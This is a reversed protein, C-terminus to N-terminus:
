DSNRAESGGGSALSDGGADSNRAESGGGSALSDGGAGSNQAQSGGDLAQSEGGADSNQAQSGNGSAQSEGGADSNQAQSGNGSAQSEGGADSNQAQSGGDLTQPDNNQRGNESEPAPSGGAGAETESALPRDVGGAAAEETHEEKELLCSGDCYYIDGLEVSYSHSDEWLKSVYADLDEMSELAGYYHLTNAMSVISRANSSGGSEQGDGDYFQVQIRKFDEIIGSPATVAEIPLGLLPAAQEPTYNYLDYIGSIWQADKVALKNYLKGAMSDSPQSSDEGEEYLWALNLQDPRMMEANAPEADSYSAVSPFLFSPTATLAGSQVAAESPTAPTGNKDSAAAKEAASQVYQGAFFSVLCGGFVAALFVSTKVTGYRCSEIIDTAKKRLKEIM